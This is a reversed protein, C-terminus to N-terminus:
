RLISPSRDLLLDFSLLFYRSWFLQVYRVEMTCGAAINIAEKCKWITEKTFEAKAMAITEAEAVKHSANTGKTTHVSSVAESAKNHHDEINSPSVTPAATLMEGGETAKIVPTMHINDESMGVTKDNESSSKTSETSM